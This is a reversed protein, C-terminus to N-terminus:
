RKFPSDPLREPLKAGYRIVIESGGSKEDFTSGIFGWPEDRGDEISPDVTALWAEHAAKRGLERERTWDDWSTGFAPDDLALILMDLREGEFYIGLRFRRRDIARAAAWSVWPENRVLIEAGTALSSALFTARTMDPRIREGEDTTLTGTQLEFGSTM